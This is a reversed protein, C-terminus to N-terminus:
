RGIPRTGLGSPVEVFQEEGSFGKYPSTLRVYQQRAAWTGAAMAALVCLLILRRM